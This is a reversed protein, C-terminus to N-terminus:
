KYEHSHPEQNYDRHLDEHSQDYSAPDFNDKNYDRSQSYEDGSRIDEDSIM